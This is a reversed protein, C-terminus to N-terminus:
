AYGRDKSDGPTQGDTRWDTVNTSQIKSRNLVTSSITLNRTRGPLGMVGLKKIGPASVGEAPACFVRPHSFYAIKSQFRQRDRFRYSIPGHTSHFTLLFDYTVSRYAGVHRNRHGQTVESGSKLTVVNKSTSYRFFPEM